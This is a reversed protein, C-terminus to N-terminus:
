KYFNNKKLTKKYNILNKSYEELINRYYYNKILSNLFYLNIKNNKKYLIYNNNKLITIQKKTLYPLLKKMVIYTNKNKKIINKNLILKYIYKFIIFDNKQEIKNNILKNNRQIDGKFNLYTGKKELFTLGPLILNSNQADNTFHHGQYIIFEQKKKLINKKLNTNFLYSIKTKNDKLVHNFFNIELFNTFINTSNLFNINDKNLVKKLFDIFYLINKNYISNEGFLILPNKAKILKKCFFHKGILINKLIDSTLGLFTVPYNFINRHGIFAIEFNNKKLNEILSLDFIPIEKNIDINIILCIDKKKLDYFSNNFLFNNTIDSNIKIEKNLTKEFFINYIANKNLLKKFLFLSELDILDGIISKINSSDELIIKNNLINLAKYWSIKKFINEKKILPFLIRQYKLSDFFFRTRNSIWEKNIKINNKPLIRLIENNYIDVRINSCISDLIDIGEKKEIEWVRTKFAYTKSTLAGVPCLDILNGSFDSNFINNNYFNIEAKNGRGNIGLNDKNSFKRIFRVCRSCHICRNMVMKIFFGAYKDEVKRKNFFFRTRDSGFVFLQDQLDCESSQDCIPCDLPHNILLFELINERAKQVLATNTFIKMNNNIPMACAAVPKPINEVEVLCMRCNGAIQLNEQFCFKPLEIKLRNCAQLITLNKNIKLKINNIYITIM